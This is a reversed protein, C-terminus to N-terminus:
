AGARGLRELVREAATVGRDQAEEFLPLGSVDSHAFFVPGSADRFRQRESSSLFGVTPRPMAHGFRMVDIRSVCRRIDPHARELDSLVFDRWWGWDRSTLAERAAAPQSEALAMYWTWVARGRHTALSQHDAPVYGLSPSDFLVNDWALDPGAGRPQRELLVNATVWPSYTWGVSPAGDIVYSALFSPAAWVVVDCQVRRKATSVDAGTASPAIRTVPEGTHLRAGVREVLRRVIWGNGEPWVLPGPETEPRAAFYHIGAWASVDAALAGYDDRCAYDVYWRLTPTRLEHEDLWASMSIGDLPSSTRDARSSPITFGGSARAEAMLDEFRDFARRDAATDVLAEELGEAWRGWRFLRSQPAYALAAESWVGDQLVGLDEFLMRAHMADPGPVPVYHAAWPFSGADSEGWRANGGPQEEAELVVFDHFGSRELWWAASLGAIGAGVVVVPVHEPPGAAVPALAGDRVGHGWAGGDDAFAGVVPPDTKRSCGVIAVSAVGALFSRRDIAGQRGPPDPSRM